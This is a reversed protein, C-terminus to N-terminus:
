NVQKMLEKIINQRIESLTLLELIMQEIQFRTMQPLIDTTQRLLFQQELSLTFTEKNLWNM